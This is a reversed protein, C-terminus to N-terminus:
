AAAISLIWSLPFWHWPQSAWRGQVLFVEQWLYLSYSLVGISSIRSLNLFRTYINEATLGFVM